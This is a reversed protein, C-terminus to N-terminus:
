VPAVPFETHCGVREQAWMRPRSEVFFLQVQRLRPTRTQLISTLSSCRDKLASILVIASNDRTSAGCMHVLTVLELLLSTRQSMAVGHFGSPGAKAREQQPLAWTCIGLSEPHEPGM